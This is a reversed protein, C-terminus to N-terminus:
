IITCASDDKHRRVIQWARHFFAKFIMKLQKTAIVVEDPEDRALNPSAFACSAPRAQAQRLSRWAHLRHPSRGCSTLTNSRKRSSRRACSTPSHGSARPPLLTTSRGSACKRPRARKKVAKASLPHAAQRDVELVIVEIDSWPLARRVRSGERHRNREHPHSRNARPLFVFVGFKEYREVKGDPARGSRHWAPERLGEAAGLRGVLAVGIRKQELDITLIEFTGTTGAAVSGWGGITRDARLPLM